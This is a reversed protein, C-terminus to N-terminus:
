IKHYKNLYRCFIIKVLKKVVKIECLESCQGHNLDIVMYTYLILSRCLAMSSNKEHLKEIYVCGSDTYPLNFHAGFVYPVPLNQSIKKKKKKCFISSFIFIFLIVLANWEKRVYFLHDSFLFYGNNTNHSLLSSFFPICRNRVYTYIRVYFHYTTPPIIHAHFVNKERLYYHLCFFNSVCM